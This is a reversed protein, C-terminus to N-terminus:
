PWAESLVLPTCWCVALRCLGLSTQNTPKKSKPELCKLFDRGFWGDVVFTRSCLRCHGYMVFFVTRVFFYKPFFDSFFDLCSCCSFRPQPVPTIEVTAMSYHILHGTRLHNHYSFSIFPMCVPFSSSIGIVHNDVSFIELFWQKWSSGFSQTDRQTSFCTMHGFLDYKCKLLYWWTPWQSDRVNCRWTVEVM